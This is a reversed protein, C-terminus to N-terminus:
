NFPKGRSNFRRLVAGSKLNIVWLEELNSYLYEYEGTFDVPNSVTPGQAKTEKLVFPPALKVIFLLGVDNLTRRAEDAPVNPVTLELNRLVNEHEGVTVDGLNSIALGTGNAHRVTVAKKVGFANSATYSGKDDSKGIGVTFSKLIHNVEQPLFFFHKGAVGCKIFIESADANYETKCFPFADMPAFKFALLSDMAVTGVLASGAIREAYAASTEFQDKEIKQRKLASLITQLNHAKTVQASQESTDFPATLGQDAQAPRKAEATATIATLTLLLTATCALIRRITM